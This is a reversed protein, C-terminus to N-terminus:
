ADVRGNDRIRRDEIICQAGRSRPSQVYRGEISMDSRQLSLGNPNKHIQTSSPVLTPHSNRNNIRTTRRMQKIRSESLKIRCINEIYLAICM